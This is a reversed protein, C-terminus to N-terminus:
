FPFCKTACGNFVVANNLNFKQELAMFRRIIEQASITVLTDFADMFLIIDNDPSSVMTHVKRMTDVKNFHSSADEDIVIRLPVGGYILSSRNLYQISDIWKNASTIIHLKQLLEKTTKYKEDGATVVINAINSSFSLFVGITAMSYLVIGILVLKLQQSSIISGSQLGLPRRTSSM